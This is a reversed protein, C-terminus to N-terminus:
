QLNNRKWYWVSIGDQLHEDWKTMYLFHTHLIDFENIGMCQTNNEIAM